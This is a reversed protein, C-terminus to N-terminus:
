IITINKNQIDYKKEYRKINRYILAEQKDYLPKIAHTIYEDRQFDAEEWIKVMGEISKYFVDVIEGDEVRIKKCIYGTPLELIEMIEDRYKEVFIDLIEDEVDEIDEFDEIYGVSEIDEDRYYASSLLNNSIEKCLYKNHCNVAYFFKRANIPEGNDINICSGKLNGVLNFLIKLNQDEASDFDIKYFDKEIVGGCKEAISLAMPINQGSSKYNFQFTIKTNKM